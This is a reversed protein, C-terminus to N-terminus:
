KQLCCKGFFPGCSYGKWQKWRDGGCLVPSCDGLWTDCTCLLAVGTGPVPVYPGSQFGASTLTLKKENAELTRLGLSPSPPM